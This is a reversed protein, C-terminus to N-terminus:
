RGGEEQNFHASGTHFQSWGCGEPQRVPLFHLRTLGPPRAPITTASPLSSLASHPPPLPRLLHDRIDWTDVDALGLFWQLIGEHPGHEGSAAQGGGAGWAPGSISAERVGSGLHLSVLRCWAECPGEALQLHDNWILLTGPTWVWKGCGPPSGGMPARDWASGRALEQLVALLLECRWLVLQRCLSGKSCGSRLCLCRGRGSTLAPRARLEMHVCGLQGWFGIVPSLSLWEQLM